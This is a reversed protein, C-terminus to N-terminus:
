LPQIGNNEMGDGKARKTDPGNGGCPDGSQNSVDVLPPRKTGAIMNPPKYTTRNGMPSPAAAPMGIRRHSDQQPNVFNPRSHPAGSAPKQPPQGSKPVDQRSVKTSRTYDVGPTRRAVASDAHPNFAPVNAPASNQAGDPRQVLEAARSTVFGVLPKHSMSTAANGNRLPDGVNQPQQGQGHVEAAQPPTPLLSDRQESMRGRLADTRVNQPAPLAQPGSRPAMPAQAASQMAPRPNGPAAHVGSQPRSTPVSQVRSHEAKKPVADISCSAANESSTTQASVTEFTFEDGHNESIEVGDFLNGGFEDEFDTAVSVNSRETSVRRVRNASEPLKEHRIEKEEKVASEEKKPPPVHPPPVFEAHRHLQEIDFTRPPAQVTRVRRLYDKDYLCNGLVNGFTRLARKLADTAAEKKAKEFAAAKGKANEIHGYGVDEHYTGDRLTVRVIISM